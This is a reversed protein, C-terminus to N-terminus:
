YFILVQMPSPSTSPVSTIKDSSVTTTTLEVIFPLFVIFRLTLAFLNKMGISIYIYITLKSMGMQSRLENLFSVPQIADGDQFTYEM